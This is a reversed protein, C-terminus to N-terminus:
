HAKNLSVVPEDSCDCCLVIEAGTLLNFSNSSAEFSLKDDATTSSDFMLSQTFLKCDTTFRGHDDLCVSDKM